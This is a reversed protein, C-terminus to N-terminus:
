ILKTTQLVCELTVSNVPKILTLLAGTSRAKQVTEPLDDSTVKVAPVDKL